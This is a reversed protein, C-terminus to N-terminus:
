SMEGSKWVRVGKKRAVGREMERKREKKTQKEKKQNSRMMTKM